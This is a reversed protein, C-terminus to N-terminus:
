SSPKFQLVWIFSNQNCHCSDIENADHDHAGTTDDEGDDRKVQVVASAM